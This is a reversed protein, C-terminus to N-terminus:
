TPAEGGSFGMHTPTAYPGLTTLTQEIRDLAAPRRAAPLARYLALLYAEDYSVLEVTVGADHCPRDLLLTQIRAHLTHLQADSLTDLRRVYHRHHM